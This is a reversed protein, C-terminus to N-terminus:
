ESEPGDGSLGDVGEEEIVAVLGTEPHHNRVSVHHSRGLINMNTMRIGSKQSHAFRAIRQLFHKPLFTSLRPPRASLAFAPRSAGLASAARSINGLHEISSGPLTANQHSRC